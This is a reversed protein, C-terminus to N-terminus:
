NHLPKIQGHKIINEENESFNKYREHSYERNKNKRRLFPRSGM